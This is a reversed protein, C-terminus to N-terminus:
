RVDSLMASNREIPVARNLLQMQWKQEFAFHVIEFRHQVEHQSIALSFPLLFNSILIVGHNASAASKHSLYLELLTSLRITPFHLM